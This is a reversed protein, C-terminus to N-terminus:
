KKRGGDFMLFAPLLHIAGDASQMLMETIGSHELTAM